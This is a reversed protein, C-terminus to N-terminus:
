PPGDKELYDAGRRLTTPNDRSNGLLWNCCRCLLGRVEGNKHNHDVCIKDFPGRCVACKGDQSALLKEKDEISLGYRKLLQKEQHKLGGARVKEPNRAKWNKIDEAKKKKSDPHKDRCYKSCFIHRNKGRKSVVFLEGCTPCTRTAELM